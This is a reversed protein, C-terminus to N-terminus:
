AVRNRVSPPYNAACARARVRVRAVSTCWLNTIWDGYRRGAIHHARAHLLPVRFGFVADWARFRGFQQYRTSGLNQDHSATISGMGAM